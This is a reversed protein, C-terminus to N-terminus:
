FNAQSPEFYALMSSPQVPMAKMSVQRLLLAFFPAQVAMGFFIQLWGNGGPDGAAPRLVAGGHVVADRAFFEEGQGGQAAETQHRAARRTRGDPSNRRVALQAVSADAHAAHHAAGVEFTELRMGPQLDDGKAVHIFIVERVGAPFQGARPLVGVPAFHEGPLSVPNIGDIDGHRVVHVRGNRQSEDAGAFMDIALFRERVVDRFAAGQRQGRFFGPHHRLQSGLNGGAHAVPQHHLPQPLADDALDPAHDQARVTGARFFIAEGPRAGRRAARRRRLQVPIQPEAGRRRPRVCWVNIM